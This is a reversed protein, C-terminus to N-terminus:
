RGEQHDGDTPPHTGFATDMRVIETTPGAANATPAAAVPYVYPTAYPVYAGETTRRFIALVGVAILYIPWSKGWSLIHLVDLLWIVGTLIIWVSHHVANALRWRYSHSGDNELGHGTNTMRSVFLWVGFGIMLIPAFVHAHFFFIPSQHLLFYAGLVILWIAGSPFRHFYGPNAALNPDAYPPVGPEQPAGWQSVPPVYGYNYPPAYPNVPPANVDAVPPTYAAVPPTYPVSGAGADVPGAGPWAKGFGLRESLDNLGFPNPLPTGDRRARATHHAEIAMYAIWGAIFLGFIANVDNSLTVLVAFVMLHVIGKAYQENYMAGVGPILGLLAATGPNPGGPLPGAGGRPVGYGYGAHPAAGAVRAVLCPECFVSSGVARVCEACLPKGCNQCFGARERDPHNACNM